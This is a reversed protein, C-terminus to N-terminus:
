VRSSGAARANEPVTLLPARVVRRAVGLAALVRITWWSVDLEFRGLGHRPSRPFRHHNNHWGEGMTLVAVIWNNRSGDKTEFRRTGFRHAVSKVSFTSHYLATTSVFFGWVLMQPGSTGLSPALHALVAGLAYTAGAATLAAVHHYRDLARLEPFQALDAAEARGPPTTRDFLWGFHSHWFSSQVPSHPDGDRDAFRHHVKHHAVWWLPGRQAATAGIAAGVAQVPRTMSFSRHSLGRHYVVTIALARVV